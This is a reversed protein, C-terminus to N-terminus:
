KIKKGVRRLGRAAEKNDPELAALEEFWEKAKAWDGLAEYVLALHLSIEEDGKAQAQLGKLLDGARAIDGTKYYYWALSDIFAVEQPKLAVAQKIYDGGEELRKTKDVLYYGFFNLADANQPEGAIVKKLTEEMPKYKKQRELVFAYYFLAANDQPATKLIGEFVKQAEKYDKADMLALAYYLAVEYNGPYKAYADKLVAASEDYRGMKTYFYSLRAYSGGDRGFIRSQRLYDAAAAFDGKNQAALTLFQLAVPNGPDMQVAKLFYKQGLDNQKALTYHAGLKALMDANALGRADMATYIEAAAAANGATEYIRVLGLYPEEIDPSSKIVSKLYDVAKQPEKRAIHIDAIQLAAIGTMQPHMAPLALLFDIAKDGDFGSLLTVYKFLTDPNNPNVKLSREYYQASAPLEGKAWLWGAYAALADADQPALELYRPIYNAMDEKNDLRLAMESLSKLLGKDGPKVADLRKYIAYAGEIDKNRERWVATIYDQYFRSNLPAIEQAYAAAADAQVVPENQAAAPLAAALVAALFLKKM